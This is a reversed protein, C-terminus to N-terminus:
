RRRALLRQLREPEQRRRGDIHAPSPPANREYRHEEGNDRDREEDEREDPQQLARRPAAQPVVEGAWPM